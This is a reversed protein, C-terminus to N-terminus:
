PLAPGARGRGAPREAERLRRRDQGLARGVPRGGRGGVRRSPPLSLEGGGRALRERRRHHDHRGGPRHRLPEGYYQPFEGFPGEEERVERLIRGEIVIEAEAPVRVANTRCRVVPLPAGHLAGAIELEDSDLPAIAQSALLTVPDVGVVVAVELDADAEEAMQLYAMTHRPLLLVGLRDPGNLQLRHISVNQIGNRPNRSILLGATNYAGSDLENHTPLPLIRALDVETHVVEQVPADEVEQSPIPNAAAHQFRSLLASPAVGMAEAMWDRDSTLGSVVSVPHGGPQPFLSAKQGDLRNAIAALQFELAIGRRAVALRDTAALRDLWDRLSRCPARVADAPRPPMDM